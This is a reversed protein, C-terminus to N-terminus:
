SKLYESLSQFLNISCVDTIFEINSLYDEWEKLGNDLKFKDSDYNKVLRSINKHFIKSNSRVYKGNYKLFYFLKTGSPLIRKTKYLEFIM